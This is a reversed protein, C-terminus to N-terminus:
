KSLFPLTIVKCLPNVLLALCAILAVVAVTLADCANCFKAALILLVTLLVKLLLSVAVLASTNVNFSLDIEESGIM